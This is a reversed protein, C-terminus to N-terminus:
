ISERLCSEIQKMLDERGFPKTLYGDCETIKRWLGDAVERDRTAASIIIVPTGPQFSALKIRGCLELGDMRPMVIDTLVLDPKESNFLEWAEEGNRAAIVDYGELELIRRLIDRV